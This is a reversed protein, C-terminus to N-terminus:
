VNEKSWNKVVKGIVKIEIDTNDPYYVEEKYKSNNSHIYLVEGRKFLKKVRLETNNVLIVFIQNNGTTQSTDIMLLDGDKIDDPQNWGSDMSNGSANIIYLHEFNDSKLIQKLFRKDFNMVEDIPYDPPIDGNGAAAGVFYRPIKVINDTDCQKNETPKQWSLLDVDFVEKIKLLMPRSVERKGSEMNAITGQSMGLKEAFATQNQFGLAIRLEKLKTQLETISM